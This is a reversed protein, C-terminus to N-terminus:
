VHKQYKNTCWGLFHPTLAVQRLKSRAHLCPSRLQRHLVSSAVMGVLGHTSMGCASIACVVTSRRGNVPCSFPRWKGLRQKSLVIFSQVCHSGTGKFAMSSYTTGGNICNVRRALPVRLFFTVCSISVWLSCVSAEFRPYFLLQNFKLSELTARWDTDGIM